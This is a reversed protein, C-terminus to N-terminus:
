ALLATSHTLVQLGLEPPGLPRARLGAETAEARLTTEDLLYWPYSVTREAVLRGDHHTRYTMHWTLIADGVPEARAWGEYRRRGVHATAALTEPVAVPETPPQLNLLARGGPALRTALLNWLARREAPPFHGIVNLAIVLGLRDPLEAAPLPEPLVTVRPRLADHTALRALLAARLGPSPEVAIIESKPLTDGLLLTGRGSGAGIDLVPGTAADTDRIAEALAPGAADWFPAILLDLYEASAAYADTADTM